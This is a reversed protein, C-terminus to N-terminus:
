QRREKYDKLAEIVDAKVIKESALRQEKHNRLASYFETFVRRLRHGDACEIEQRMESHEQYLEYWELLV